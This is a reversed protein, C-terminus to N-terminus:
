CLRGRARPRRPSGGAPERGDGCGAPRHGGVGQARPTRGTSWTRTECRGRRGSGVPGYPLPTDWVLFRASPDGLAALAQRGDLYPNLGHLGPLRGYAVYALADGSLMPPCAVVVLAVGTRGIDVRGKEPATRRSTRPAAMLVWAVWADPWACGCSANISIWRSGRTPQDWWPCRRLRRATARSPGPTKFTDPHPAPPRGARPSLYRRHRGPRYGAM